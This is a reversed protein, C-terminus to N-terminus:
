IHAFAPEGLIVLVVDSIEFFAAALAGSSIVSWPYIDMVERGAPHGCPHGSSRGAADVM